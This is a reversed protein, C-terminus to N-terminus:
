NTSSTPTTMLSTPTTMLSTPTTMLSTSRTMLYVRTQDDLLYVQHDLLNAQDDHRHPRHSQDDLLYVRHDLLNAQDDHRHSQDDLLHVQDGHFRTQGGHHHNWAQLLSWLDYYSINIQHIYRFPTKVSSLGSNVSIFHGSNCFFHTPFSVWPINYIRM